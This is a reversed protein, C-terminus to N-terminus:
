QNWAAVSRLDGIYKALTKKWIDQYGGSITKAEDPYQAQIKSNLEEIGVGHNQRRVEEFLEVCFKKDIRRVVRKKAEEREKNAQKKEDTLDIFRMLRTPIIAMPHVTGEPATKGTNWKKHHALASASELEYIAGRNEVIVTLSKHEDLIKLPLGIGERGHIATDWNVDNGQAVWFSKEVTYNQM